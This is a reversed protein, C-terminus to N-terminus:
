SIHEHRADQMLRLFSAGRLHLLDEHDGAEMYVDPCETLSDDVITDMGYAQGVPPIAGLECDAFLSKLEPETALGFRRGLVKSVKGLNVHHTAPVVAMLYGNEDELVIAKALNEAPVHATTASDVAAKTHRHAVIDYPIGKQALFNQLKASIAM